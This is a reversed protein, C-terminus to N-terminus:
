VAIPTAVLDSAIERAFFAQLPGCHTALGNWENELNETVHHEAV